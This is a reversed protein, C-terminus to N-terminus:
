KFQNDDNTIRYHNDPIHCAWQPLFNTNLHRDVQKAFSSIITLTSFSTRKRIGFSWEALGHCFVFKLIAAFNTSFYRRQLLGVRRVKTPFDKLFYINIANKVTYYRRHSFYRECFRYSGRLQAGAINM